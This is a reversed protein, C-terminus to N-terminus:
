NSWYGTFYLLQLGTLIGIVTGAILEGVKHRGLRWRSWAIVPASTLLALSLPLNLPLVALGVFIVMSTHLSAKIRFNLLFSILVLQILVLSGILMNVPQKTLILFTIVLFALFFIFGYMSYRDQRVSVDFNTYTGRKTHIHNWAVLPLIGIGILGALTWWATTSSHVSFTYFILYGMILNIPHGIRSIILATKKNVMHILFLSIWQQHIVFLQRDPFFM